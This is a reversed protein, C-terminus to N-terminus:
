RRNQTIKYKGEANIEVISYCGPHVLIDEESEFSEGEDMMYGLQIRIVDEEDKLEKGCGECHYSM